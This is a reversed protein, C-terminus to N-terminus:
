ELGTRRSQEEGSGPGLDNETYVCLSAEIQLLLHMKQSSVQMKAEPNEFSAPPIAKRRVWRPGGHSGARGARAPHQPSGRGGGPACQQPPSVCKFRAGRPEPAAYRVGECCVAGCNVESSPTGARREEWLGPCSSGDRGPSASGHPAAAGRVSSVRGPAAGTAKVAWRPHRRTATRM